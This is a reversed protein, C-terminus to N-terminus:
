KGIIKGRLGTWRKRGEGNRVATAFAKQEGVVIVLRKGRTVGTYILSRELMIFQAM